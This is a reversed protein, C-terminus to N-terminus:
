TEHVVLVPCPAHKLVAASTSGELRARLGGIGRSGVVIAAAGAQEARTTLAEAVSSTDSLAEPKAILGSAKALEAGHAAVAAAHGQAAKDIELAAGYDTSGLAEDPLGPAFPANAYAFAPEWVTVILAARGAFLEGAHRIAEASSQSGDFAILVPASAEM